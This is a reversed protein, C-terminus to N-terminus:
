ETCHIVMHHETRCDMTSMFRTPGRFGSPKAIRPHCPSLQGRCSMVRLSCVVSSTSSVPAVPASVDEVADTCHLCRWHTGTLMCSRGSLPSQVVLLGRRHKCKLPCASKRTLRGRDTRQTQCQRDSAASWADVTKTRHSRCLALSAVSIGRRDCVTSLIPWCWDSVARSFTPTGCPEISPRNNNATYQLGTASTM